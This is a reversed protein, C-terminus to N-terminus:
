AHSSNSSTLPVGLSDYISFTVISSVVSTSPFPSYHWVNLATRIVNYPSIGGLALDLNSPLYVKNSSLSLITPSAIYDSLIATQLKLSFAPFSYHFTFSEDNTDLSQM